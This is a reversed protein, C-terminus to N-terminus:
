TLDPSTSGFPVVVPTGVAAAVHMPGTDNSLLLDCINLAACLERLTTRGALNTIGVKPIREVLGKQIEEVLPIDAKGGFLIWHCGTQEWLRAATKVFRDAPWRKAPGYEAGPNLGFVLGGSAPIECRKRCAEVTEASIYIRPATETREAGFAENVLHLYQHIHHASNPHRQRTCLSPTAILCHIEKTSRKHMKIEERRPPIRRTLFLDRFPRSYGIRQGLRGFWMELASRPSNPLILGVDFQERRLRAGIQLVSEKASFTIVQDLYPQEQWLDTLKEHTLLAIHAAPKAERLRILAPTSMVADGLWNM